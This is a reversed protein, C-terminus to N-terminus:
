EDPIKDIFELIASNPIIVGLNEYEGTFIASPIGLMCGNKDVALGGSNGSDIKASTLIEGNESFSSIIGDTITLNLGGSAVPYGFIRVKDELKPEYGACIDPRQYAVFSKPYQGWVKGDSDEYAMDIKLMAIDYQESLSPIIIPEAIYIEEPAGSSINPITVLCAKSEAIVHNNTVVFGESSFMIGSGGNENDCLVNVVASSINNQQDSVDSHQPLLFIYFIFIIAVLLLLLIFGRKYREIWHALAFDFSRSKKIERGCNKCFKVKGENKTGCNRCYM